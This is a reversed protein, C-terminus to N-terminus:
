VDPGNWEAVAEKDADNSEAIRAVTAPAYVNRRIMAVSMILPAWIAIIVAWLAQQREASLDFGFAIVASIVSFVIGSVFTWLRAPEHTALYQFWNQGEPIVPIEPMPPPIAPMEPPPIVAPLDIDEPSPLHYRSNRCYGVPVM